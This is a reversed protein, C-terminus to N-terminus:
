SPREKRLRDELVLHVLGRGAYILGYDGMPSGM